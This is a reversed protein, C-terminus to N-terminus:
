APKGPDVNETRIILQGFSEGTLNKNKSTVLKGHFKLNGLLKKSSLTTGIKIRKILFYLYEEMEIMEKFNTM